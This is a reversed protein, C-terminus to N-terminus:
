IAAEYQKRSLTLPDAGQKVLEAIKQKERLFEQGHEAHWQEPVDLNATATQKSMSTYGLDELLEKVEKKIGLIALKGSTSVRAELKGNNQNIKVHNHNLFGFFDVHIAGGDLQSTTIIARSDLLYSRLKSAEGALSRAEPSNNTFVYECTLKDYAM